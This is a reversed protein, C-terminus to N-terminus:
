KTKGKVAAEIKKRQADELVRRANMWAIIRAKRISGELQSVADISKTVDLDSANPNDLLQKLHDSAKELEKKAAAVQKDSDTRIKQIADRQAPKLSLDGLNSVADDISEDDDVDPPSPLDNDDDGDSDVHVNFNGPKFNKQWTKAFDKGFHKSMDKGFKDMDEGFQEMEQGIEEGMQGLEEGLQDMDSADLRDLRKALRARLKEIRKELKARVEPPLGNANHLSRVANDLQNQVLEKVGEIQVKGDHISISVGGHRPPLPPMPPNHPNPPLPPLPATHPLPPLPATHPSPPAPPAPPVPPAPPTPRTSASGAARATGAATTDSAAPWFGVMARGDDARGISGGFLLGGAIMSPLVTAFLNRIKM